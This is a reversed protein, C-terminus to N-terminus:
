QDGPLELTVWYAPKEEYGALVDAPATVVEVATPPLGKTAILYERVERHLNEYWKVINPETVAEPHIILAKEELKLLRQASDLGANVFQLLATDRDSVEIARFFEIDDLTQGVKAPNEHFYYDLKLQELAKEKRAHAVEYKLEMRVKMDPKKNYVQVIKDLIALEDPELHRQKLKVPVKEVESPDMGLSSSLFKIPSVAVKVIVNILAKFIIKRYSFQPDDTRGEVPLDMEVNGNIDEMLYVGLRIPVNYEPEPTKRKVKGLDPQNVFLVNDGILYDNKINNKSTFNMRGSEIPYGFMAYSYPSFDALRVRKMDLFIYQNSLDDPNGDWILAIKGNGPVQTAIDWRTAKGPAFDRAEVSVGTLPYNFADYLTPDRYDVVGNRISFQRIIYYLEATDAEAAGATDEPLEKMLNLLSNNGDPTMTVFLEPQNLTVSDLDFSYKKLDLLRYGAHGRALKVAPNGAEDLMEFDSVSTTGEVTVAMPDETTGKLLLKTDLRGDFKSIKLYDKVWPEFSNLRANVLELYLEYAGTALNYDTKTIIKGGNAFELSLDVDTQERSLVLGGILLDLNDFDFGRNGPVDSYILEGDVLSINYVAIDVPLPEEPVEATATDDAPILDDFNFGNQFALISVQPAKIRLLSLRFEKSMLRYLDTNFELTDLTAFATSDDAEMMTFGTLRGYGTFLNYYLGDLQLVRGSLEKGNKNIYNKAISPLALVLALLLTALVAGVILLIRKV